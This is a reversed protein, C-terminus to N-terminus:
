ISGAFRPVTALAQARELVRARAQELAPGELVLPLCTDNWHRPRFDPHADIFGGGNVFASRNGTDLYSEAPLGEALLIDHRELEVHWYDVRDVAEQTISTGNILKEAQILVGDIVISHGPSVWLDRSPQQEAIAGARIRIPWALEPHAHRTCDIHRTGLWRVARHEGSATIVLDSVGLSEIPVEGRTTLLRTGRRYCAAQLTVDTDQGVTQFNLTDGGFSGVFIFTGDTTALTRTAATYGASAVDQTIGKLIIEDGVGAAFGGIPNTFTAGGTAELTGGNPGFKVSYGTGLGKITGSNTVTGGNLYVGAGYSHSSNDNGGSVFGQNTFAGGSVRVGVGGAGGSGASGGHILAGSNNFFTGLVDVGDGATGHAAQGGYIDSTNIAIYDHSVVLGTGGAGGSAAYAGGGRLTGSNTFTPGSLLQLGIGGTQLANGGEIVGNTNATDLNDVTGGEIVVGIGGTGTDGSLMAAGGSITGGVNTLNGSSVTAGNGGNGAGSAVYGGTISGFSSLTGATLKLADGGHGGLLGAGGYIHSLNTGSDQSTKFYVGVGGSGGAHAGTLMGSGGNIFGSNSLTGSSLSVGIGGIGGLYSGGGTITDTNVINASGTIDVGIGGAITGNTSGYGARILGANSLTPSTGSALMASTFVGDAGTTDILVAGALTINLPVTYNGTGLTVTTRVISSVTSM